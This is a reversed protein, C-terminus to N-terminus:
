AADALRSEAVDETVKIGLDLSREAAAPLIDELDATGLSVVFTAGDASGSFDSAPLL